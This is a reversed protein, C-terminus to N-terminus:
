AEEDSKDGLRNDVSNGLKTMEEATLWVPFVAVGSQAIDASSYEIVFVNNDLISKYTVITYNNSLLFCLQRGITQFFEEDSRFNSRKLILSSINNQM